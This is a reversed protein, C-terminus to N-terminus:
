DEIASNRVELARVSMFQLVCTSMDHTQTMEPLGPSLNEM